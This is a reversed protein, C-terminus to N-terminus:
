RAILHKVVRVVGLVPRVIRDLHWLDPALYKILLAHDSRMRTKGFWEIRLDPCLASCRVASGADTRQDNKDESVMGLDQHHADGTEDSM